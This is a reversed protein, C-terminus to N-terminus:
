AASGAPGAANSGAASGAAARAIPGISWRRGAREIAGFVGASGMAIVAWSDAEGAIKGRYLSVDPALAHRGAADTTSIAADGSLLPYPALDLTLASGDA